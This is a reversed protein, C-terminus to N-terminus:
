NDFFGGNFIFNRSRPSAGILEGKGLLGFIIRHIVIECFSETNMTAARRTGIESVPLTGTDVTGYCRARLRGSM